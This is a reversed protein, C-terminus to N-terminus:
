FLVSVTCFQVNLCFYKEKGTGWDSVWFPKKQIFFASDFIEHKRGKLSNIKKQLLPAILLSPSQVNHVLTAKLAFARPETSYRTQLVGAICVTLGAPRQWANGFKFRVGLHLVHWGSSYLKSALRVIWLVLLTDWVVESFSLHLDPKCM